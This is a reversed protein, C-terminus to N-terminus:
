KGRRLRNRGLLALGLLGSGVLTLTAPEPVPPGAAMIVQEGGDTQGSYGWYFIVQTTLPINGFKIIGLTWDAYGTGTNQEALDGHFFYDCTHDAGIDVCLLDVHIPPTQGVSQNVDVGLIATRELPDTPVGGFLETLIQSVTYVPSSIVQDLGGGTDDPIEASSGGQSTDTFPFTAQAQCHGSESGTFICPVHFQQQLTLGPLPTPQLSSVLSFDSQLLIDGGAATPTHSAAALGPYLAGVVVAFLGALILAGRTTIRM